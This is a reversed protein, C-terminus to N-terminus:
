TKGRRSWAPSEHQTLGAAVHFQRRVYGNKGTQDNGQGDQAEVKQTVANLLQLNFTLDVWPFVLLAGVGLGGALRQRTSRPLARWYAWM